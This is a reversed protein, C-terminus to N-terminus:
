RSFERGPGWKPCGKRKEGQASKEIREHGKKLPKGLTRGIIGGEQSGRMPRCPRVIEKKTKKENNVPTADDPKKKQRGHSHATSSSWQRHGAM